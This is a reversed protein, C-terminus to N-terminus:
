RQHAFVREVTEVIRETSAFFSPHEANGNEVFVFGDGKLTKVNRQVSPSQYMMNNIHTAVVKPGRMSMIATSVLDDAIGNAAKGLLDASAPALLLLDTRYSLSQHQPDWIAPLTFADSQVPHQVSRQVMIPTVFHKANATMAAYVDAGRERLAYIVDLAKAAASCGAIAVVIKKKDLLGFVDKKLGTKNRKIISAHFSKDLRRKCAPPIAAAAASCAAM